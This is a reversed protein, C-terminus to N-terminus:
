FPGYKIMDAIVIFIAGVIWWAIVLPFIWKIWKQYPVGALALGAMFYGSVPTIIDTYGDALQYALVATQRTVGLVDALPVLIPMTLAAMGTASSVIFSIIMQVGYMGLAALQSPMNQITSAMGAIITDIVNANTLIVLVGRALGVIMAGFTINACGQVLDEAMQNVGRGSILGSVIAMGLFLGSIEIIFWGWRTVGIILFIVAILLVLLILKHRTTMVISDYDILERKQDIEYVVSKEPNKKIKRGYLMFYGICMSMTVCFIIIRYWMGSFLPLEAIGQALGVTFPNLFAGTYGVLTAALAMGAALISDYGLKICLVCLAPILPLIEEAMGFIAGGVVFITSLIPIVLWEFGKSNKIIVSIGADIAGTQQVVYFSGAVVFIFFVIGVAEQLGNPFATLIDSIGAPNAEVAHFSSPDVLTRGDVEIREYQGAPIIHTAIAAIIILVFLLVWTHPLSFRFRRKAEKENEIAQAEKLKKGGKEITQTAKL